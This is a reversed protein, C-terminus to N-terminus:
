PCCAARPLPAHDPSAHEVLVSARVTAHAHDREHIHACTLGVRNVVDDTARDATIIRLM